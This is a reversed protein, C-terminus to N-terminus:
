NITGVMGQVLRIITIQLDWFELFKWYLLCMYSSFPGPHGCVTLHRIGSFILPCAGTEAFILPPVGWFRGRGEHVGRGWCLWMLFQALEISNFICCSQKMNLSLELSSNRSFFKCTTNNFVNTSNSLLNLKSSISLGLTNYELLTPYEFKM